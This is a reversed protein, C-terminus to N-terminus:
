GNRKQLLDAGDEQAIIVRCPTLNETLRQILAERDSGQGLFQDTDKRYALITGSHQELKVEVIDIQSETEGMYKDSLRQKLRQLDQDTFQMAELFDRMIRRHFRDTVWIGVAVGVALALFVETM